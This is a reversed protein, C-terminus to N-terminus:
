FEWGERVPMALFEQASPTKDGVTGDNCGNLKTGARYAVNGLLVTESLTGSYEFNCTTPGGERIARFWEEHHGPSPAISKAPREFDAFDKEPLLKVRSYDACLVGKDGFFVSGNHWEIKQGDPATLEPRRGGDWWHVEVPGREGRAPHDWQTHIWAPTGVPHVEPGESVTSEPLSLDLAWHVLDLHHCGMDGLTGTGYDWFKRWNARHLGASFPREPIRGQWLNWDLNNPVPIEEGFRGGSWSKSCMVHVKSVKGIAGAGILEVVRRYNETAHIQTGMQTPQSSSAALKRVFRVEEVTHALPKECYVSLGARLGGVTPHAHAHDPTSVLLADIGGEDILRRYDSFVKIKSSDHGRAELTKQAGRIQDSDVDCIAVIHEGLIGALNGAGRGGVGVIAVRVKDSFPAFRLLPGAAPLLAASLFARRPLGQSHSKTMPDPAILSRTTM